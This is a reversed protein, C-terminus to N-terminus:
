CLLAACACGAQLTGLLPTFKQKERQTVSFCADTHHACCKSCERGALAFFVQGLMCSAPSCVLM